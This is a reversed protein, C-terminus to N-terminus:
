IPDVFLALIQSKIMVREPYTYGDEGKDYCAVTLRGFNLIPKLFQRPVSVTEVWEKNVSMWLDEALQAFKNMAEEKSVGYQKMYCDVATLNEGGDNSERENTARDNAYRCFQAMAVAIQPKSMLWEFHQQTASGILYSASVLMFLTSTVLGLSVIDEFPPVHKRRQLVQTFIELDELPAYTDYTDDLVAILQVAKAVATRAFSYQPEYNMGVGWVYSEVIRDRVYPVKSSMNSDRWWRTLDFLEKQYLSQLYNFNLKAFRVILENSSSEKEYISIYYRVVLIPVERHISRLLARSVRERLLPDIESRLHNLHCTTFTIAEELVNEGQIRVGTAEYLSLLGKIDSKLDEDTDKMFRDFVGCPIIHGHQRFLRFLLSTNFLDYKEMTKFNSASSERFILELQEDIEKEFHYSLGLRELIDILAIKDTSTKSEKAMLMERVEERLPAVSEDYKVQVEHTDINKSIFTDGWLSPFSQAPQGIENKSHDFGESAM